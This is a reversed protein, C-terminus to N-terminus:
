EADPLASLDLDARLGDLVAFHEDRRRELWALLRAAWRLKRRKEPGVTVDQLDWGPFRLTAAGLADALFAARDGDTFGGFNRVPGVPRAQTTPLVFAHDCDPVVRQLLDTNDGHAHIAVTIGARTFEPVSEPHGDLDTVVWDPPRDAELLRDAARGAALVTDASGLATPEELDPGPAAIAITQGQFAGSDLDVTERGELLDRLRYRAAEDAARDYGMDARIAEYVPEWTDFNVALGV